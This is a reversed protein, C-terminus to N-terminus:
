TTPSRWRGRLREIRRAVELVIAEAGRLGAVQVGLPMGGERTRGMPLTIAPVGLLNFVSTHLPAAALHRDGGGGDERTAPGPLTPLVIADCASALACFAAEVSERVALARAYDQGDVSFGALIRALTAPAYGSSRKGIGELHVEAAEAYLIALAAANAASFPFGLIEVPQLGAQSLRAVLAEFQEEVDPHVAQFRAIGVALKGRPCRLRTGALVEYVLQADAVSRALVGLHDLSPALPITGDTPLAGFSPKFGVIGALSAPNRVSGATDTGISALGAGIAVAAASGSSSGGITREPDWPNRAPGFSPHVLGAAYELLNTKGLLVAGAARLRAVIEADAAAARAPAAQSSATTAAGRMQILDKLTVPVGDLPSLPRGDRYRRVSEGAAWRADFELIQTFANLEAGRTSARELHREIVELPSIEGSRYRRYLRAIESM